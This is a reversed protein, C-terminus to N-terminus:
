KSKDNIKYATTDHFCREFSSQFHKTHERSNIASSLEWVRDWVHLFGIEVRTIFYLSSNFIRFAIWLITMFSVKIMDAKDMSIILWYLSVKGSENNDQIECPVSHPVGDLSKSRRPDIGERRFSCTPIDTVCPGINLNISM